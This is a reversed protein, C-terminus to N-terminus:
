DREKTTSAHSRIAQRLLASNEDITVCLEIIAEVIWRSDNGASDVIALRTQHRKSETRM